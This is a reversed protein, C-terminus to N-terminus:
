WQYPENNRWIGTFRRVEVGESDYIVFQGQGSKNSNVFEGEFNAYYGDNLKYTHKGTGTFDKTFVYDNYTSDSIVKQAQGAERTKKIVRLRGEPDMSKPNLKLTFIYTESTNVAPGSTAAALNNVISLAGFIGGLGTNGALSSLSSGADLVAANEQIGKQPDYTNDSTFIFIIWDGKKTADVDSSIFESNFGNCDKHLNIRYQGEEEIIDLIWWAVSTRGDNHNSRWTGSFWNELKATQTVKELKYELQYIKDKFTEAEASEPTLTLYRRYAILAESYNNMQEYIKGMSLIVTKNDPEIDLVRKLEGVAGEYDKMDLAASARNILRRVDENQQANVIKIFFILVVLLFFYKKRMNFFNHFSVFKDRM